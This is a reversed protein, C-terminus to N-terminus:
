VTIGAGNLASVQDASLTAIAVEAMGSVIMLGYVDALLRAERCLAFSEDDAVPCRNRWVNIATEIEAIALRKMAAGGSSHTSEFTAGCSGGMIGNLLLPPCTEFFCRFVLNKSLPTSAAKRCLWDPVDIV